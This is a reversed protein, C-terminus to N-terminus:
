QDSKGFVKQIFLTAMVLLVYDLWNKLLAKVTAVDKAVDCIFIYFLYAFSAIFIFTMIGVAIAVGWLPVTRIRKLNKGLKYDDKKTLASIERDSDTFDDVDSIKRTLEESSTKALKEPLDPM